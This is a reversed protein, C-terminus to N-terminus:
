SRPDPSSPSSARLEFRGPATQQPVVNLTDLKAVASLDDAFGAEILNRGGVAQQLCEVISVPRAHADLGRWLRTALLTADNGPQWDAADSQLREIIAGATLVDELAVQGDTGACILWVHQIATSKELARRHNRLWECVAERNLLSALLMHTAADAAEVAVTGNTTSFVLERASVAERTYEAPSNGLDFGPIRVCAREGCLRAGGDLKSATHRALEIDSVVTIARAGAALAVCATSTFRLTDIIIAVAEGNSWNDPLLRPLLAVSLHTHM